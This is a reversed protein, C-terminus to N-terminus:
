VLVITIERVFVCLDINKKDNGVNGLLSKGPKVVGTYSMHLKSVKATRSLCSQDVLPGSNKATQDVGTKLASTSMFLVSRRTRYPSQSPCSNKLATTEM